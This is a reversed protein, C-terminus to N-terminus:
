RGKQAAMAMGAISGAVQLLADPVFLDNRVGYRDKSMSMAMPPASGLLAAFPRMAMYEPDSDAVMGVLGGISVYMEFMLRKPLGARATKFAQSANFPQFATAAKSIEPWRAADVGVTFASHAGAPLVAVVGVSSTTSLGGPPTGKIEKPIDWDAEKPLMKAIKDLDLRPIVAIFEPSGAGKRAVVAITPAKKVTQGYFDWVRQFAEYAKPDDAKAEAAVLDVLPQFLKMTTKPEFKVGMAMAFDAPVGRILSKSEQPAAAVWRGLETRAKVPMFASMTFGSKDLTGGFTMFEGKSASLLDFMKNGFTRIAKQAKPDEFQPDNVVELEFERRTETIFWDMDALIAVDLESIHSWAIKSLKRRRAKSAIARNDNSVILYGRELRAFFKKESTKNFEALVSKYKAGKRWPVYFVTGAGIAADEDEMKFQPVSVMLPRTPDISDGINYPLQKLFPTETFPTAMGYRRAASQVKKELGAVNRVVMVMSVKKPISPVAAMANASVLLLAVLVGFVRVNM